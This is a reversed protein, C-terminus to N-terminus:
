SATQIRYRWVATSSGGAVGSSIATDHPTSDQTDPDDRRYRFPQLLAALLTEDTDQRFCDLGLRAPRSTPPTYTGFLRDWFSFVSGYNGDAEPQFNYHHMIHVSPTILLCRLPREIYEPLNINAHHWLSELTTLVLYLGMAEASFGLAFVLIYSLLTSINMEFPDHRRTTTVDVATDSHHAVHARWLVPVEHLVRHEWYHWADLILLLVAAEVALPLHLDRLLGAAAIAAIGTMEMPLGTGVSEAMGPQAVLLLALVASLQSINM